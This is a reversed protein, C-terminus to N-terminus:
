THLFYFSKDAVYMYVQPSTSIKILGDEFTWIHSPNGTLPLPTKFSPSVHPQFVLNHSHFPLNRMSKELDNKKNHCLLLVVNGQM